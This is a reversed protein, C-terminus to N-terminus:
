RSTSPKDAGAPTVAHSNTRNLHLLHFASKYNRLFDKSPIQSLQLSQQHEQTSGAIHHFNNNEEPIYEFFSKCTANSSRETIDLDVPTNDNDTFLAFITTFHITYEKSLKYLAYFIQQQLFFAWQIHQWWEGGSRWHLMAWSGGASSPGTGFFHWM